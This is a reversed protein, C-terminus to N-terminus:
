RCQADGGGCVCEAFICVWCLRTAGRKKVEKDMHERITAHHRKLVRKLYQATPVSGAYQSPDDFKSFLPTDKPVGGGPRSDRDLMHERQVLCQSWRKRHLEEVLHAFQAARTGHALLPRLLNVLVMDVGGRLSLWAPFHSDDGIGFPLLQRSALDWGMFSYPPPTYAEDPLFGVQSMSVTLRENLLGVQVTVKDDSVVKVLTGQKGIHCRHDHDTIIIRDGDNLDDVDQADRVFGVTTLQERM